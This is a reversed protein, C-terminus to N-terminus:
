SKKRKKKKRAPSAVRTGRPKTQVKETGVESDCGVNALLPGACPKGDCVVKPPRNPLAPDPDSVVIKHVKKGQALAGDYRHAKGGGSVIVRALSPHVSKCLLLTEEYTTQGMVDRGLLHIDDEGDACIARFCTSRPPPRTPTEGEVVWYTSDNVVRVNVM